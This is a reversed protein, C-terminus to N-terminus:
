EGSTRETTGDEYASSYARHAAASTLVSAAGQETVRTATPHGSAITVPYAQAGKVYYLYGNEDKILAGGDALPTPDFGYRPIDILDGPKPSTHAVPATPTPATSEHTCGTMAFVLLWGAMGIRNTRLM